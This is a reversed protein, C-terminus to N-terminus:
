WSVSHWLPNSSCYASKFTSTGILTPMSHSLLSPSPSRTTTKNGAWGFASTISAQFSGIATPPFAGRVPLASSPPPRRRAGQSVLEPCPADTWLPLPLTLSLPSHPGSSSSIRPKRNPAPNPNKPNPPWRGGAVPWRPGRNHNLYRYSCSRGARQGPRSGAV